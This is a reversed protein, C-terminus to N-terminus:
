KSFGDPSFSLDTTCLHCHRPSPISTPRFDRRANPTGHSHRKDAGPKLRETPTADGRVHGASFGIIPWVSSFRELTIM